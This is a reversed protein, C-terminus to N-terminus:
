FAENVAMVFGNQGKRGFGYDLRLVVNPRLRFRYGIGFNPLLQGFSHSDHFVNGVGGWVVIGSRKWIHQRLEVQATMSHKDRFRGAYYGRMSSNSGLQAMMAWSPSGVNFTGRLEGALIAGKWAPHYGSITFITTTFIDDNLLFKPHFLQKFAFYFGKTTNTMQDRTDFYLSYGLGLNMVTENQGELLEPREIKGGTIYNWATAFGTYFHPVVKINFDGSFTIEQKRIKSENADIIAQDYGIGWFKQPSYNFKLESNLRYRDGPFLTTGSLGVTWFGATSIDVWVDIKSPQDTPQRGKLHHSLMGALMLAFKADTSYHPGGLIVWKAKTTAPKAITDNEDGCVYRVMKKFFGEKKVPAAITDDIANSEQYTIIDAVNISDIDIIEQSWGTTIFCLAIITILIRKMSDDGFNCSKKLAVM